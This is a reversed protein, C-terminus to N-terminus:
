PRPLVAEIDRTRPFQRLSFCNDCVKGEGQGLEAAQQALYLVDYNQTAVAVGANVICNAEVGINVGMTAPYEVGDVIHTGKEPDFNYQELTAAIKRLVVVVAELNEGQVQVYAGPKNEPGEPKEARFQRADAFSDTSGFIGGPM